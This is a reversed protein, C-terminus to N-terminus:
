FEDAKTTPNSSQQTPSSSLLQVQSMKVVPKSRAEGTQKDTWEELKFEGTLSLLSGKTTYKGIIEAQKGWCHVEFWNPAEDRRGRDVAVTIRALVTRSEFYRIEPDQGLRGVLMIQNLNTM